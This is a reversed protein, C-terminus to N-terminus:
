PLDRWRPTYSWREGAAHVFGHNELDALIRYAHNEDLALNRFDKETYTKGVEGKAIQKLVKLMRAYLTEFDLAERDNALCEACRVSEYRGEVLASERLIAGYAACFYWNTEHYPGQREACSGCTEDRCDVQRPVTITRLTM